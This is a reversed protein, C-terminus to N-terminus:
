KEFFNSDTTSFGGNKIQTYFPTELVCFPYSIKSLVICHLTLEPLLLYFTHGWPVESIICYLVYQKEPVNSLCHLPSIVRRSWLCLLRANCCLFTNGLISQLSHPGPNKQRQALEGEVQFCQNRTITIQLLLLINKGQSLRYRSGLKKIAM